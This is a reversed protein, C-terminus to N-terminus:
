LVCVCFFMDNEIFSFVYTNPAYYLLLLFFLFLEIIVLFLSFTKISNAISCDTVFFFRLIDTIFLKLSITCVLRLM